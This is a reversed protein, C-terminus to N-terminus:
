STTEEGALPVDVDIAPGVAASRGDLPQLKMRVVSARQQKDLVISLAALRVTPEFRPIAEAVFHKFLGVLGDHNLRRHRARHLQSGFEQDWELEGYFSGDESAAQSCLIQAVHSRILDHGAGTAFDQKQDRQFPNLPGRLFLSVSTPAAPTVAAGAADDGAGATGEDLVWSAIAV